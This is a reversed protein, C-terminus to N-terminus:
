KKYYVATTKQLAGSRMRVLYIGSVLNEADVLFEHVGPKLTGQYVTGTLRGQANFLELASVPARTDSQVPIACLIRLMSGSSRASLGFTRPQGIENGHVLGNSATVVFTDPYSTRTFDFSSAITWAYRGRSIQAADTYFTDNSFSIIVPLQPITDIRYVQIKYNTAGAAHHWRFILGTQPPITDPQVPILVPISDTQIIFHDPLSPRPNLDCRVRWFIEGLPLNILSAFSTDSTQQIAWLTSFSSIQAIEITYVSASAVPHWALRPRRQVTPDPEYPVLAPINSRVTTTCLVTIPSRLNKANHTIRFTDISVAAAVLAKADYTFRITGSGGANVTSSDTYATVYGGSVKAVGFSLQSSGTNQITATRAATDGTFLTVALSPAVYSMTTSDVTLTCAVSSPNPDLFANHSIRLVVVQTGPVLRERHFTLSVTKCAGARVRGSATDATVLGTNAGFSYQLTDRAGTNCLTLTKVAADTPGVRFSGPAVAIHPINATDIPVLAMAYNTGLFTGNTGGIAYITQGAIVAKLEGLAAPL